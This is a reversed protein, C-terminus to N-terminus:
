WSMPGGDIGEGRIIRALEEMDFRELSGIRRPQPLYGKEVLEKFESPKMDLMRAATAATAFVPDPKPGGRSM